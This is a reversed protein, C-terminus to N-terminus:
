AELRASSTTEAPMGSRKRRGRSALGAAALGCAALATLPDIAGGGGGGTRNSAVRSNSDVDVPGPLNPRAASQSPGAANSSSVDKSNAPKAATDSPQPGMQQEAKERLRALEGRVTEQAQRDRAVRTVNRRDIKWRQYEADNELVIFSAFESAISYGECLRVIEPKLSALNGDRRGDAMLRSVRQYAWMRDIEPNADNRDPLELQKVEELPLGLVDAKVKMTVTGGKRYRGYVRLPQGHYLNPLQKPEVDYVDGDTFNIQLGTM